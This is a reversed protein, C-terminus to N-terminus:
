NGKFLISANDSNVLTITQEVYSSWTKTFVELLLLQSWYSWAMYDGLPLYCFIEADTDHRVVLGSVIWETSQLIPLRSKISNHIPKWVPFAKWCMGMWSTVWIRQGSFDSDSGSNWNKVPHSVVDDKRSIPFFVAQAAHCAHGSRVSVSSARESSGVCRVSWEMWIAHRSRQVSTRYLLLLPHVLTFSTLHWSKVCPVRVSSM